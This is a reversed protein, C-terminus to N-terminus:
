IRATIHIPNGDPDEFYALREGWPKDAPPAVEEVGQSRLREAALDTDDTYLCLEFRPRAKGSLPRGQVQEAADRSTIGIGLPELRLFAYDLRGEPPWRFSVEFGFADCYFRVSRDVDSAYLIPFPSRFV